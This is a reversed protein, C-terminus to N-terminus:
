IIACARLASRHARRGSTNPRAQISILVRPRRAGTRARERSAPRSWIAGSDPTSQNRGAPQAARGSAAARGGPGFAVGAAVFLHREAPGVWQRPAWKFLRRTRADALNPEARSPAFQRIGALPPRAPRAAKLAAKM